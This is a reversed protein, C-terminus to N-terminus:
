HKTFYQITLLPLSLFHLLAALSPQPSAKAPSAPPMRRHPRSYETTRYCVMMLKGSRFEPKHHTFYTNFAGNSRIVSGDGPSVEIVPSVESLIRFYSVTVVDTTYTSYCHERFFYKNLM